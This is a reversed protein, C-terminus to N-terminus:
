LDKWPKGDAELYLGLMESQSVLATRELGMGAVRGKRPVGCVTRGGETWLCARRMSHGRPFECCVCTGVPRVERGQKPRVAMPNGAAPAHPGGLCTVPGGGTNGGFGASLVATM